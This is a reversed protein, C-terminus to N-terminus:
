EQSSREPLLSMLDCDGIKWSRCVKYAGTSGLQLWRVHKAEPHAKNYLNLLRRASGDVTLPFITVVTKANPLRDFPRPDESNQDYEFAITGEAGTRTTVAYTLNATKQLLPILFTGTWGAPFNPTFQSEVIVLALRIRATLHRCRGATGRAAHHASSSQLRSLVDTLLPRKLDSRSM